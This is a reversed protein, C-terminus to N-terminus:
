FFTVEIIGLAAATCWTAPLVLLLSDFRDLLGGHGPLVSGMDKVGLDRKLMSELLDGITAAVAVILGLIISQIWGGPAAGWPAIDLMGVILVSVVLSAVTGGVLGELSKNPSASSFPTRGFSRGAFYAGIDYAVTCLIAALLMGTGHYEFVNEVLSLSTIQLVAFSGLIGIYAMGLFTIAINAVPRAGSAGFLYWLMGALIALFLIIPYAVLGRWYIALPLLGTFAVGAFTAPDYGVHRVANYFEAAALFLAVSVLVTAYLPGAWLAGAAIVALVLGVGVASMLDRGQDAGGAMAPGGPTAYVTGPGMPGTGPAMPGPGGPGMQGPGPGMPGPGPGGPGMPGPGPAPPQWGMGGPGAPGPGGPGMPDRGPWPQAGNFGFQPGGPGAQAGAGIPAYGAPNQPSDPRLSDDTIHVVKPAGEVYPPPTGPQGSSPPVGYVHASDDFSPFSDDADESFVSVDMEVNEPPVDAFVRIDDVEDYDAESGRWRPGSLSSMPDGMGQGPGANPDANGAPETWHPLDLSPDIGEDEEFWGPAGFILSESDQPNNDDSM